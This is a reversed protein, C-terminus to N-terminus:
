ILVKIPQGPIFYNKDAKVTIVTQGYDICCGCCKPNKTQRLEYSGMNDKPNELVTITQAFEAKKKDSYSIFYAIVEYKVYNDDDKHHSGPLNPPLTLSFPYTYQANMVTGNYKELIFEDAYLKREDTYVETHGGHQGHSRYETWYM